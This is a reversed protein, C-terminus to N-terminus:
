YTSSSLFKIALIIMVGGVALGISSLVKLMDNSMPRNTLSLNAEAKVKKDIKWHLYGSALVIITGILLGLLPQIHYNIYEM